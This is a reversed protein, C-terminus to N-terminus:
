NMSSAFPTVSAEAEVRALAVGPRSDRAAFTSLAFFIAASLAVGLIPARHWDGQIQVGVVSLGLVIALAPIAALPAVYRLALRRPETEERDIVEWETGPTLLLNKVRAILALM